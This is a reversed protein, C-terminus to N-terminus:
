FHRALLASSVLFKDYSTRSVYTGRIDIYLPGHAQNFVVSHVRIPSHLYLEV